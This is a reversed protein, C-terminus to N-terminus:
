KFFAFLFSQTYVAGIDQVFYWRRAKLGVNFERKFSGFIIIKITVIVHNYESGGINRIREGPCFYKWDFSSGPRCELLSHHPVNPAFISLVFYSSVISPWSIGAPFREMINRCRNKAKYRIGIASLPFNTIAVSKAKQRWVVFEFIYEKEIMLQPRRILVKSRLRAWKREIAAFFFRQARASLIVNPGAKYLDKKKGEEGKRTGSHSLPPFILPFCEPSNECSFTIDMFNASANKREGGVKSMKCCRYCCKSFLDTSTQANM